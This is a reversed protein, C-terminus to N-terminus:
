RVASSSSRWTTACALEGISSSPRKVSSRMRTRRLPPSTSFTMARGLDVVHVDRRALHHRDRGRHDREELVVVGVTGQHTGVHLALRNRQHAALRRQDAGAHLQAGRDVGAIDDDGVLGAHDLLDGGVVDGHHGVVAGPVGVPHALEGAGVVAGAGVLTRDHVRALPDLGALDDGVPRAGLVTLHRQALVQEHRDHRPLAVVVLVRDDQGLAEHLLVHEGRNVDLLVLDVSAVGLQAGLLDGPVDRVDGILHQGIEVLAADDADAGLDTVAVDQDALDGRLALGLQGRLLPQQARDETLLSALHAVSRQLHRVTLGALDDADPHEGALVVVLQRGADVLQHPDVHRLLALDGVTVLEGSAVAVLADDALDQGDLVHREQRVAGRDVDDQVRVTHRSPHVDALDQLGVEAPNGLGAPLDFPEGSQAALRGSSSSAASGSLM